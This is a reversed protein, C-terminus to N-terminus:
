KKPGYDYDGGKELAKLYADREQFCKVYAHINPYK